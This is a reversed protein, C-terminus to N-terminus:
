VDLVERVADALVGQHKLLAIRNKEVNMLGMQNMLSLQDKYLFANPDEIGDESGVIIKVYKGMENDYQEFSHVLSHFDKRYEFCNECLDFDQCERCHFRSGSWSEVFCRNCKYGQQVFTHRGKEVIPIVNEEIKVFKSESVDGVQNDSIASSGFNLKLKLTTLKKTACLLEQFEEINTLEVWDGDQDQYLMHVKSLDLNLNKNLKLFVLVRDLIEKFSVPSVLRVRRIDGNQFYVKVSVLSTGKPIVWSEM